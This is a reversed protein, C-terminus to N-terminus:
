DGPEEARGRSVVSDYEDLIRGPPVSSPFRMVRGTDREIVRTAAGRFAPNLAAHEQILWGAGFDLLNWNRASPDGPDPRVVTCAIAEAQERTIM